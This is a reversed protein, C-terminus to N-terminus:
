ELTRTLLLEVVQRDDDYVGGFAQRLDQQMVDLVLDAMNHLDRRRGTIGGEPRPGVSEVHVRLEESLALYRIAITVDDDGFVSHSRSGIVERVIDRVLPIQEEAKEPPRICARRSGGRVYRYGIRQSNKLAAVAFPITFDVGIM